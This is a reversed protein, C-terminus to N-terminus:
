LIGYDPPGPDGNFDFYVYIVVGGRKIEADLDEERNWAGGPTEGNLPDGHANPGWQNGRYFAPFPDTIEDTFHMQHSWGGSPVFVALGDVIQPQMKYGRWSAITAMKGAALATRLQTTDRIRAIQIKNDSAMAAFKGYPTSAIDGANRRTGWQDSTGAYAPVGPDDSFLVGFENVARAGWAGTSGAGSMGGGVQNRSVAYVWPTFWPRWTEEQFKAAIEIVQRKQGTMVLGDGVCNGTDQRQTPILEFPLKGQKYLQREMDWTFPRKVAAVAPAHQQGCVESEVDLFEHAMGCECAADFARLEAKEGLWGMLQTPPHMGYSYVGDPIKNSSM